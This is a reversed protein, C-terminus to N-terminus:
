NLESSNRLFFVVFRRNKKIKKKKRSTRLFPAAARNKRSKKKKMNSSASKNKRSPLCVCVRWVLFFTVLPPNKRENQRSAFCSHVQPNPSFILFNMVSCFPPTRYDVITAIQNNSSPTLPFRASVNSTSKKKKGHFSVPQGPRGDGM